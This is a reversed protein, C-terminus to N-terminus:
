DMDDLVPALCTPLIPLFNQIYHFYCQKAIRTCTRRLDFKHFGLSLNHGFIEKVINKPASKGLGKKEM